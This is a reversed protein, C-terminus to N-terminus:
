TRGGLDKVGLVRLVQQLVRDVRAREEIAERLLMVAEELSLVEEQENTAIYGCPTLNDDNRTLLPVNVRLRRMLELVKGIKGRSLGSCVM